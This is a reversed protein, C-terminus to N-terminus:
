KRRKSRILDMPEYVLKKTAFSMGPALLTLIGGFLYAMNADIIGESLLYTVILGLIGYITTKKGSLWKLAKLLFTYLYNM